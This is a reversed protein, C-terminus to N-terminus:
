AASSRRTRAVPGSVRCAASWLRRILSKARLQQREARQGAVEAGGINGRGVITIKMVTIENEQM